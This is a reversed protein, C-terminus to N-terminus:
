IRAIFLDTQHPFLGVLESALNDVALLTLDAERNNFSVTTATPNWTISITSAGNTVTPSSSLSRNFHSGAISRAWWCLWRRESVSFRPRVFSPLLLRFKYRDLLIGLALNWGQKIVYVPTTRTYDQGALLPDVTIWCVGGDAVKSDRDHKM